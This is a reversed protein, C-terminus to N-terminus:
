GHVDAVPPAKTFEIALAQVQAIVKKRWKTPRKTDREIADVLRFLYNADNTYSVRIAPKRAM